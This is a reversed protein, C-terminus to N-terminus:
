FALLAKYLYLWIQFAEFEFAQNLVDTLTKPRTLKGAQQPELERLGDFFNEVTFSEYVEDDVSLYASRLLRAINTQFESVIRSAEPNSKTDPFSLLKWIDVALFADRTVEIIRRFKTPRSYSCDTTNGVCRRSTVFSVHLNQNSFDM